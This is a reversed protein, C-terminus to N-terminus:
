CAAAAAAPRAAAEGGPVVLAAPRLSTLAARLEAAAHTACLPAYCCWATFAFFAVASEPGNPLAVCVREGARLGLQGLQAGFGRAFQALEAHLLPRRAGPGHEVICAADGLPILEHLPAAAPAAAM